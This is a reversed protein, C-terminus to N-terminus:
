DKKCREYEEMMYKADIDQTGASECIITPYLGREAMLMALPEYPPGFGENQEFTLHRKEGGKTFEIKSFHVHFDPRGIIDLLKAYDEKTEIGGLTRANLHGFDVCPIMRSDIKCLEMVEELTGLQNIKGMTEPCLAIHGLGEDDVAKQARALTDLALELATERTQKQLAGSHIIIRKAGMADAARASELIYRLSNDRKEAELSSLSIFYPAHLSLTIGYKAAEEGFAKATEMGVNVGRGCQYEYATLGMEALFKPMQLTKKNGAAYFADTNGAPGFLPKSM